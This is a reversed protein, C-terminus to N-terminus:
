RSQSRVKRIRVVGDRPHDPRLDGPERYLFRAHMGPDKVARSRNLARTDREVTNGEAKMVVDADRILVRDRSLPQGARVETLAEDSAERHRICSELVAHIAVGESDPVKV